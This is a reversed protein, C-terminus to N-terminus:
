RQDHHSHQSAYYCGVRRKSVWAPIVAISPEALISMLTSMKCVIFTGIFRVSRYYHQPLDAVSHGGIAEVTAHDADGEFPTAEFENEVAQTNTSKM